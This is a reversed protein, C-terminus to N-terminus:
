AGQPRKDSDTFSGPKGLIDHRERDDAALEQQYKERLRAVKSALEHVVVLKSELERDDDESYAESM